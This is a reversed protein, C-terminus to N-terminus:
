TTHEKLDDRLMGDVVDAIYRHEIVYGTAGWRPCDEPLHEYCWHLARKSDPWIIIISGEIQLRFDHELGAKLDDQRDQEPSWDNLRPNQARTIERLAENLLFNM